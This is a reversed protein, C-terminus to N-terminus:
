KIDNFLYATIAKQTDSLIYKKVNWDKVSSRGLPLDWVKSIDNIKQYLIM